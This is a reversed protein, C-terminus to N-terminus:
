HGMRSCYLSIMKSFDKPGYTYTKIERIREKGLFFKRIQKKVVHKQEMENHLDILFQRTKPFPKYQIILDQLFMEVDKYRREDSSDKRADEMDYLVYQNNSNIGINGIGVDGHIYGAVHIDYLALAINCLIKIVNPNNVKKLREYVIINPKINSNLVKVVNESNVAEFLALEKTIDHYDSFIKVVSNSFVLVLSEGSGLGQKIFDGRAFEIIKDSYQRLNKKLIHDLNSM